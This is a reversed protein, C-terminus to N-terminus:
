ELKGGAFGHVYARVVKLAQDETMGEEMCGRMIEAWLRTIAPVMALMEVYALEGANPDDASM